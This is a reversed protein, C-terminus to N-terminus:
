YSRERERERSSNNHTHNPSAPIGEEYLDALQHSADELDRRNTEFKEWWEGVFAGSNTIESAFLICACAITQPCYQLCLSSVLSDNAVCWAMTGIEEAAELNRIFHLLYHQPHSPAMDFAFARLLIQEARVVLEKMKWYETSVRLPERDPYNVAYTTNLVDRIRRSNEEAKSALLICGQSMVLPDYQQLSYFAFFRHFFVCATSLTLIPLELNQGAQQIVTIYHRKQKKEAAAAIGDRRSPSKELENRTM